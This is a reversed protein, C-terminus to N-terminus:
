QNKKRFVYYEGIKKRQHYNEPLNPDTNPAIHDELGATEITAEALNQNMKLPM